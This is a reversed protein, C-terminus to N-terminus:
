STQSEGKKRVRRGESQLPSIKHKKSVDNLADVVDKVNVSSDQRFIKKTEVKKKEETVSEDEDSSEEDCSSSLLSSGPTKVCIPKAREAKKAKGAKKRETKTPRKTVSVSQISIGSM